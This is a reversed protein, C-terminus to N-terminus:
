KKFLINLYLTKHLFFNQVMSYKPHLLSKFIIKFNNKKFFNCVSNLSYVNQILSKHNIQKSRFSNSISFPTHSILVYSKKNFNIKDFINKTNNLYQWSSGFHVLDFNVYEFSKLNQSYHCKIKKSKFVKNDDLFPDYIYFIIKSTNIKNSLNHLAAGNGGGYDLVKLIKKNNSVLTLVVALIDRVHNYFSDEIFNFTKYKNHILKKILYNSSKNNFKKWFVM